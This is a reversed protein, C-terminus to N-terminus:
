RASYLYEKLSVIRGREILVGERALSMIKADRGYVFDGVQGNSKVVRHCPVIGVRPNHHLATGVARVASPRGIAEAVGQYTMVRGSPIKSVIAYVAERFASVM